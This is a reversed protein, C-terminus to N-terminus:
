HMLYQSNKADHYTNIDYKFAHWPFIYRCKLSNLMNDFIYTHSVSVLIVEIKTGRNLFIIAVIPYLIMEIKKTM